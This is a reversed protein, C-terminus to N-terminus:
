SDAPVEHNGRFLELPDVQAKIARLRAYAEEGYFAVPDHKREAFNLYQREPRLVSAVLAFQAELAAV